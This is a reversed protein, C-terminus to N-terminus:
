NKQEKAVARFIMTISLAIAWMFIAILMTVAAILTGPPAFYGFRWITVFVNFGFLSQMVIYAVIVIGILVMWLTMPLVLWWIKIKKVSSDNSGTNQRLSKVVKFQWIIFPILGLILLASLATAYISINDVSKWSAWWPAQPLKFKVNLILGLIGTAIEHANQCTQGNVLMAIGLKQEPLLIMESLFNTTDGGHWLVPENNETFGTFWGMGYGAEKDDETFTLGTTHMTEILEAPIVQKRDILGDNLNAILWRGMDEASSMIWGAPIASRYVPVDRAVVKGLLLQHGSAREHQAAVDPKCTSNQMALPAFIYEQVFDEFQIGSVREVLAGLLAYNSNAYEFVSGPPNALHAKSMASILESFANSGGHYLVPDAVDGHLGSTQQLLQRITIKSYDGDALRFEPIYHVLPKDLDILGEHWLILTALATFSKSCSALDFITQPTVPSRTNLSAYGYGRSYVIQQGSVIAIALGPVGKQTMEKQIYQDIEVSSFQSSQAQAPNASIAPLIMLLVSFGLVSLQVKHLTRSFNNM